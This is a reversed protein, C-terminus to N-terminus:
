LLGRVKDWDNPFLNLRSARGKELVAYDLAMFEDVIRALNDALVRSAPDLRRV